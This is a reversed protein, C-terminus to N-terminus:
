DQMHLRLCRARGAINEGFSHQLPRLFAHLHQDAIDAAAEALLGAEIRFVADHGVRGDLQISFHAPAAVAGIVKDPAGM